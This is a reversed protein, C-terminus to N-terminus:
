LIIEHRCHKGYFSCSIRQENFKLRCVVVRKQVISLTLYDAVSGRNHVPELSISFCVIQRVM